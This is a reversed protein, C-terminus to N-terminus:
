WRRGAAHRMGWGVGVGRQGGGLERSRWCDDARLVSAATVRATAPVPRRSRRGRHASPARMITGIRGPSQSMTERNYRRKRRCGGGRSCKATSAGELRGDGVHRMDLKCSLVWVCSVHRIRDGKGTNGCRACVCVCTRLKNYFSVCPRAPTYCSSSAALLPPPFRASSRM